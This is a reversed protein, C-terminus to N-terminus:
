CFIRGSVALGCLRKQAYELMEQNFFIRKSFAEQMDMWGVKQRDKRDWNRRQEVVIQVM